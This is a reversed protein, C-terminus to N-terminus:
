SEMGECNETNCPETEEDKGTCQSRDESRSVSDVCRRSRSRQGGGCTANCAGWEGWREWEYDAVDFLCAMIMLSVPLIVKILVSRALNM